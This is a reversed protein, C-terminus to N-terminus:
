RTVKLKYNYAKPINKQRKAITKTDHGAWADEKSKNAKATYRYLLEQSLESIFEAFGKM